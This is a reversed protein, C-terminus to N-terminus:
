VGLAQGSAGQALLGSQERINEMDDLRNVRDIISESRDPGM